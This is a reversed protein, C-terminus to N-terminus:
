CVPGTSAVTAAVDVSRRRFRNPRFWTFRICGKGLSLGGLKPRHADFVDTRLVYFSIYNKRNAFSVEVVGHRSYAPMGHQMSESFGAFGEACARRLALLAERRETPAEALYDDVNEARSQM